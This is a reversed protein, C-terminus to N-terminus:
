SFSVRILGFSTHGFPNSGVPAIKYRLRVVFEGRRAKTVSGKAKGKVTISKGNDRVTAYWRVKCKVALRSDRRCRISQDFGQRYFYIRKSRMARNVLHKASSRELKPTRPKPRPRPDRVVGQCDVDPWQISTGEILTQASMYRFEGCRNSVSSLYVKGEINPYQCGEPPYGCTGSGGLPVVQATGTATPSGWNEWTLEVLRYGCGGCTGDYAIMQEPEIVSEGAGPLNSDALQKWYVPEDATAPASMALSALLVALTIGIIRNM